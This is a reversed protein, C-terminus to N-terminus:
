DDDGQFAYVEELIRDLADNFTPVIFGYKTFKLKRVETWTSPIMESDVLYSDEGTNDLSVPKGITNEVKENGENSCSDSRLEMYVDKKGIQNFSQMGNESARNAIAVSTDSDDHQSFQYMNIYEPDIIDQEEYHFKEMLDHYKKTMPSAGTDSLHHLKIMNNIHQLIVDSHTTFWVNCGSNVLRIICQAMLKQLAPHLHAEPEEIILTQFHTDSQLLLSFPAVETVVSSAIHLPLSQQSEKPRYNFTPVKGKKIEIKGSLIKNYLFSLLKERYVPLNETKEEELNVLLNIFDVYPQTLKAGLFGDNISRTVLRKFVLLIGTRSAPLYLAKYDHDLSNDQSNLKGSLLKLCVSTNMRLIDDDTYQYKKDRGFLMADTQILAKTNRLFPLVEEISSYFSLKLGGELHFQQIEIKKSSIPFNFLKKLLKGRYQELLENFWQIYYNAIEQDIEVEEDDLHEKLWNYCKKYKDSMADMTPSKMPFVVYGYQIIGWLLTMLYSKGSNNEGVFCLLPATQIDAEVIKGVHEVHLTWRQKM